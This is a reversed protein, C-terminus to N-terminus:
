HLADRVPERRRRLARVSGLVLFVILLLVAMPLAGVSHVSRVFLPWIQLSLPTPLTDFWGFADSVTREFWQGYTAAGALVVWAIGGILPLARLLPKHRGVRSALAWGAVVAILLGSIWGFVGLAVAIGEEGVNEANPESAAFSQAGYMMLLAACATAAGVGTWTVARDLRTPVHVRVANDTM